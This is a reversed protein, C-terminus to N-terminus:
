SNHRATSVQRIREAPFELKSLLYTKLDDQYGIENLACCDMAVM